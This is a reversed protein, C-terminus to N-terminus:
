EDFSEIYALEHCIEACEDATFNYESSLMDYDESRWGGDYLAIATNLFEHKYSM